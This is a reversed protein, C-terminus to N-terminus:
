REHEMGKISLPMLAAESAISDTPRNKTLWLGMMAISLIGTSLGSLLLKEDDNICGNARKRRSPSIPM